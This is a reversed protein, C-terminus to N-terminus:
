EIKEFMKVSLDTRDAEFVLEGSACSRRVILKDDGDAKVSYDGTKLAERSSRLEGLRRYLDLLPGQEKGWPFAARNEPDSAGTLGAEDGYYITPVGPLAYLLKVAFCLKEMSGLATMIRRRDHSGLLNMASLVSERPYNEWQSRLRGAAEQAGIEGNTFDILLRRVPYNMVSDLERGQLYARREGYSMKNSADEWVEGILLTDPHSKVRERIKRIFSDPLEDAVDLRWGSAGASTWKELVGSDGCIFDAFGPDDENTGPLTDVGWWCEYGPGVGPTFRYWNRYPSDTHAFAGNGYRELKDFYISDSGTHNFVGDLIIRIGLEKAKECLRRFDEETGLLPDTQMYDATDYRHNSAAKFIPNLYISTCGLSKIYPLKEEIGRFNGGWFNWGSVRGSEDKIYYPAKDWPELKTGTAADTLLAEKSPDRSLDESTVCGGSRAFRDPFIQYCPGAKFWESAEFPEYATIQFSQPDGGEEYLCGEGGLQEPNNGYCVQRGGELTLIFFYWLLAGEPPMTLSIGFSGGDKEMPLVAEGGGDRYLRLSCAEAEDAEIRLLVRGGAPVCGAPSRYSIDQSDHFIM